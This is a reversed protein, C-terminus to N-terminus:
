NNRRTEKSDDTTWRGKSPFYKATKPIRCTDGLMRWGDIVSSPIEDGVSSIPWTPLTNEFFSAAYAASDTFVIFFFAISLIFARRHMKREEEGGQKISVPGRRCRDGRGFTQLSFAPLSAPRIDIESQRGLADPQWKKKSASVESRRRKKPLV